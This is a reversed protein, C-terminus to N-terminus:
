GTNNAQDWNVIWRRAPPQIGDQHLGTTATHFDFNETTAAGLKLEINFRYIATRRRRHMAWGAALIAGLCRVGQDGLLKRATDGIGWRNGRWPNGNRWNRGGSRFGIRRTCRRSRRLRSNGSNPDRCRRIRWGWHRLSGGRDRGWRVGRSRRRGAGCSRGSRHRGFHRDHRNGFRCFRQRYFRGALAGSVFCWRRRRGRLRRALRLRSSRWLHREHWNRFGCFSKGYLRRALRRNM